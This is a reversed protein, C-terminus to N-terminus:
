FNAACSPDVNGLRCACHLPERAQGQSGRDRRRADQVALGRAGAPHEAVVGVALDAHFGQLHRLAAESLPVSQGSPREGGHDTHLRRAAGAGAGPVGDRRRCRSPERRHRVPGMAQSVVDGLTRSLIDVGGGAPYPVYIHVPKTPFNSQALPAAAQWCCRSLPLGSGGGWPRRGQTKNATKDCAASSSRIAARRLGCQKRPMNVIGGSRTM